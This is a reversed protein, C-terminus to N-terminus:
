KGLNEAFIKRLLASDNKDSWGSGKRMFKNQEIIGRGADKWKEEM